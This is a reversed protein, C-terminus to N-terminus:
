RNGGGCPGLCVVAQKEWAISRLTEVPVGPMPDALAYFYGARHTTSNLLALLNASMGDSAKRVWADLSARTSAKMETPRGTPLEDCTWYRGDGDLYFVQRLTSPVSSLLTPAAEPAAGSKPPQVIVEARSPVTGRLVHVQVARSRFWDGSLQTGTRVLTKAQGGRELPLFSVAFEEPVEFSRGLLLRTRAAQEGIITFFNEGAPLLVLATRAGIGGIGDGLAIVGIVGASAAASLLPVTFFLRHRRRAPALWFLNVPGIVVAFVCVFAILLPVNLQPWGIGTLNIWGGGFDEHWAPVPAGDLGLIDHMTDNVPLTGGALAVGKVIGFGLPTEMGLRVGPPLAPLSRLEDTSAIFLRGGSMVWQRIATQRPSPMRLWDGETLWLGAIGSFARPDAPMEDLDLPSGFLDRVGTRSHSAFRRSVLPLSTSLAPSTRLAAELPSWASGALSDSIAVYNTPAGGGFSPSLFIRSSGGAIGFGTITGVFMDFGVRDMSHSGARPVLLDFERVQGAEVSVEEHHTLPTAQRMAGGSGWRIQWTHRVTTANRIKLHFPFFGSPPANRFALGADIKIGSKPDTPIRPTQQFGHGAQPFALILAMILVVCGCWRFGRSWRQAGADWGRPSLVMRM